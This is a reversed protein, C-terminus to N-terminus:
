QQQHPLKIRLSKGPGRFTLFAMVAGCTIFGSAFWSLRSIHNEKLKQEYKQQDRKNKEKYHAVLGKEEELEVRRKTAEELATKLAIESEQTHTTACISIFFIFFVIKKM